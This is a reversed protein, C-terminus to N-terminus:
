LLEIITRYLREFRADDEERERICICISAASPDDKRSELALAKTAWQMAAAKPQWLFLNAADQTGATLIVVLSNFSLDKLDNSLGWDNNFCVLFSACFVLM